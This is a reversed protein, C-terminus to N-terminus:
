AVYLIALSPEKYIPSSWSTLNCPNSVLQMCCNDVIMNNFEIQPYDKAVDTAVQLFLGDTLKM